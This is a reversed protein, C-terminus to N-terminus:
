GALVKGLRRACFLEYHSLSADRASIRASYAALRERAAFPCRELAGELADISSAHMVVLRREHLAVTADIWEPRDLEGAARLALTSLRRLLAPEAGGGSEMTGVLEFLARLGSAVAGSDLREVAAEVEALFRTPVDFEGTGPAPRAASPPRIQATPAERRAVVRNVVLLVHLAIQVRAGHPLLKPGTLAVGEVRTGHRSGLDVVTLKGETVSFRAHRRSVIGDDLVLDCSADRGVVLEDRELRHVREGLRVEWSSM